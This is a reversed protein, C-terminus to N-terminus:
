LVHVFGTQPEITVLRAGVAFSVPAVIESGGATDFPRGQGDFYIAASGVVVGGPAPGAWTQGGPRAVARTLTGSDCGAARQLLRYGDSGVDFATDCGSALALRQAFRAAAAASDAFGMEEFRSAAFFRPMANAALIGLLVMVVVLEVVTYGAAPRRWAFVRGHPRTQTTRRVSLM